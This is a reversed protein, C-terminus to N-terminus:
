GGLNSVHGTHRRWVAECGHVVIELQPQEERAVIM